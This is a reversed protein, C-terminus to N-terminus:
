VLEGFQLRRRAKLRARETELSTMRGSITADYPTTLALNWSTFTGSGATAGSPVNVTMAGTGSVYNTIQGVMYNAPAGPNPIILWQGVCWAKGTQTTFTQTGSGITMSTTSTGNTGPANLASAAYTAALAVQAVLFQAVGILAAFLPILRKVHGGNDMGTTPSTSDDYTAGDGGLASDMFVSHITM